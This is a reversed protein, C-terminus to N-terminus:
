ALRALRSQQTRLREISQTGSCEADLLHAHKITGLEKFTAAAAWFVRQSENQVEIWFIWANMGLYVESAIRPAPPSQPDANSVDEAVLAPM